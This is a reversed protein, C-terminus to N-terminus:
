YHYSNEHQPFAGSKVENVFADISQKFQEHGNFFTKVFKPKFDTNLGLLDQFVLVQGDTAPGAGIGITPILLSQTITQALQIPICELVLMFCGAEQLMMAERQLREADSAKKGQVKFGGLSHLLQATMGLHGVVPIGSEVLHQILKLNGAASEMKLACAGAQMLQCAAHVNKSLSKRYSLFPLDAIIFKNSAGRRVAQTHLCMMSLTAPITDEYGHMTMAASDGVLICDIATMSVIRASTYDYCTIMTIKDNSKKKLAFDFINM